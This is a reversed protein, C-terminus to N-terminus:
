GVAQFAYLSRRGRVQKLRNSRNIRRERLTQPLTEMQEFRTAGRQYLWKWVQRAESPAEDWSALLAELAPLDLKHLDIEGDRTM